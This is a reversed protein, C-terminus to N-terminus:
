GERMREGKTVELKKEMDTLRNINQLYTWKYWKKLNWTYTIDYSTQRERYSKNWKTYYERPGNM